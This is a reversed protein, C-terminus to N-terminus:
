PLSGCHLGLAEARGEQIILGFIEHRRKRNRQSTDGANHTLTQTKLLLCQERPKFFVVVVSILTTIEVLHSHAHTRLVVVEHEALSDGDQLLGVSNIKRKSGRLSHNALEVLSRGRRSRLGRVRWSKPIGPQKAWKHTESAVDHHVISNADSHPPKALQGSM